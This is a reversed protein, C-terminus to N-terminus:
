RAALDIAVTMAEHDGGAPAAGRLGEGHEVWWRRADDTTWDNAASTGGLEEELALASAPREAPTKALCRMLIDPSRSISHHFRTMSQAIASGRDGLRRNKETNM